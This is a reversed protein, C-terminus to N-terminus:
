KTENLLLQAAPFLEREERAILKRLDACFRRSTEAYVTWEAEIASMRWVSIHSSYALRLDRTQAAIEDYAPIRSTLSRAQLPRHVEDNEIQLHEALLRALISRAPGLRDAAATFSGSLLSALDDSAAIIAAHQRSLLAVNVSM